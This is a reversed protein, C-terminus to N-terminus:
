PFILRILRYVFVLGAVFGIFLAFLGFILGGGQGTTLAVVAFVGAVLLALFGAVVYPVSRVFSVLRDPRGIWVIKERGALEGEIKERVPPSLDDLKLSLARARKVVDEPVDDRHPVGRYDDDEEDDPGITLRRGRVIPPHDRRPRREDERGDPEDRRP